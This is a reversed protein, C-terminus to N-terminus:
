VYASFFRLYLIFSFHVGFSVLLMIFGYKKSSSRSFFLLALHLSSLLAFAITFPSGILHHFSLTLCYGFLAYGVASVVQLLRMRISFLYVLAFLVCSSSVWYSFCVGMATGVLTGENVVTNRSKMGWLLILVLTFVIMTPGYMEPEKHDDLIESKPTPILSGVLRRVVTKGEVEFYPRILDVNSYFSIFGQTQSKTNEWITGAVQKALGGELDGFLAGADTKKQSSNGLNQEPYMNIKIEAPPPASDPRVTSSDFWVDASTQSSGEIEDDIPGPPTPFPVKEM